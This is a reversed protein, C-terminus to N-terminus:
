ESMAEEATESQWSFYQDVVVPKGNNWTLYTILWGMGDTHAIGWVYQAMRIGQVAQTVACIGDAQSPAAPWVMAGSEDQVIQRNKEKLWWNLDLQEANGTEPVFVQATTGDLTGQVTYTPVERQIPSEHEWGMVYVELNGAGGSSITPLGAVVLPNGQQDQTMFITPNTTYVSGNGGNLATKAVFQGDREWELTYHYLSEDWVWTSDESQRLYPTACVKVVDNDGDGDFDMHISTITQKKSESALITYLYWFLDDQKIQGGSFSYTERRNNSLDGVVVCDKLLLLEYRENTANQWFYLRTGGDSLASQQETTTDPKRLLSRGLTEGDFYTLLAELQAKSLTGKYEEGTGGCYLSVDCNINEQTLVPIVKELQQPHVYWLAVGIVVVFLLCIGALWYWKGSPSPAVRSGQKKSICGTIRWNM